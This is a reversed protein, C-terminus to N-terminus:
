WVHVQMWSKALTLTRAAWTMVVRGLLTVKRQCPVDHLSVHHAWSAKGCPKQLSSCPRWGATRPNTHMRSRWGSPPRLTKMWPVELAM